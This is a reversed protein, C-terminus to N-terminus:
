LTLYIKRFIVSETSLFFPAGNSKVTNVKVFLTVIVYPFLFNFLREATDRFVFNTTLDLVKVGGSISHLTGSSDGGHHLKGVKRDGICVSLVHYVLSLYGFTVVTDPLGGLHGSPSSSRILPHQHKGQNSCIILSTSTCWVCVQFVHQEM